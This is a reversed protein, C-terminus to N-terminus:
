GRGRGFRSAGFLHITVAAPVAAAGVLTVIPGVNAARIVGNGGAALMAIAGSAAGVAALLGIVAATRVLGLLLAAVAAGCALGVFPWATLAADGIEGVGLVRRVAGDAAYSNRSRSGSYLWPLFTGIVVCVL